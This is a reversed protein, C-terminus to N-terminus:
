KKSIAKKRKLIANQMQYIEEMEDGFFNEPWNEIEGYDNLRLEELKSEGDELKCFNIKVDKDDIYNEAIRRQIRTLFHESHSEIIFQVKRSLAVDIILDGLGSQVKPHLHIEPQEVIIITGEPVYYGLAIIPLLQSVGFGVDCIDVWNKAGKTKISVQYLQKEESIRQIQFDDAMGFEILWKCVLEALSSDVDFFKSHYKENQKFSTIMADITNEGRKGFHSHGSGTWKYERRPYERLPGIYVMKEFLRKFEYNQSFLKKDINEIKTPQYPLEYFYKLVAIQFKLNPNNIDNVILEYGTANKKTNVKIGERITESNMETVEVIGNENKQLEFSISRTPTFVFDQFCFGFSFVKDVAERNLIEDFNGLNIYSQDNGFFLTVKDDIKM